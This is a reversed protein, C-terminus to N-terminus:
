AQGTLADSWTSEDFGILWSEYAQLIPRKILSPHQSMLSVASKEDLGEREAESLNRWTTGRRNILKDLPFQRILCNALEASCSAKKYDHFAYEIGQDNLWTKTRKITECNNIGYLTISM